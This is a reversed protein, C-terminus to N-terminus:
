SRGNKLDFLTNNHHQYVQSDGIKPALQLLKDIVDKNLCDGELFRRPSSEFRFANRSGKNILKPWNPFDTDLNNILDNLSNKCKNPIAIIEFNEKIREM